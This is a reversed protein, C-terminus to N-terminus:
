SPEQEVVNFAHHGPEFEEVWFRYPRIPPFASFGFAEVVLRLVHENPLMGPMASSVSLHRFVGAPQEEFSIACRYTGLLVQQPAYKRRIQEVRDPHKRDALNLTSAPDDEAIDHLVSWPVTNGKAAEVAANIMGQLTENIILVTIM